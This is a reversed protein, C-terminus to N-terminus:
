ASCKDLLLCCLVLNDNKQCLYLFVSSSFCIERTALESKCAKLTFGLWCVVACYVWFMLFRVSLRFLKLALLRSLPDALYYKTQNDRHCCHVIL